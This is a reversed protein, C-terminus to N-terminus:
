GLGALKASSDAVDPHQGKDICQSGLSIIRLDFIRMWRHLLCYLYIEDIQFGAEKEWDARFLVAQAMAESQNM